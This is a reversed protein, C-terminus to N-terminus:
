NFALNTCQENENEKLMVTYWEPEPNCTWKAFKSKEGVYYKRYALVPDGHVKYKDPMAQAFQTLGRKPLEPIQVSMSYLLPFSKHCKNYRRAYIHSLALAHETLWIYNNRSYTAWLTCPHNVFCKKYLTEKNISSESVHHVTSLMQASELIMKIVHKDCMYSAAMLPDSHLAFINM